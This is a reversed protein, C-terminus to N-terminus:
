RKRLDFVIISYDMTVIVYDTEKILSMSSIKDFSTSFETELTYPNAIILKEKNIAVIKDLNTVYDM